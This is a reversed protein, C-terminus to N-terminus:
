KISNECETQGLKERIIARLLQENKTNYLHNGVLVVNNNKDLLFTQYM